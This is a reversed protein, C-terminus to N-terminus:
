VSYLRHLHFSSRFLWSTCHLVSLVSRLSGKSCFWGFFGDLGVLSSLWKDRIFDSSKGRSAAHMELSVDVVRVDRENTFASGGSSELVCVAHAARVPLNSTQVVLVFVLLTM